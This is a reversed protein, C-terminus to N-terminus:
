CKPRNLVKIHTGIDEKLELVSNKMGGSSETDLPTCWLILRHTGGWSSTSLTMTDMTDRVGPGKELVSQNPASKLTGYFSDTLM